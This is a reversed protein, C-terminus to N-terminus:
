SFLLRIGEFASAFGVFFLIARHIPAVPHGPFRSFAGRIRLSKALSGVMFLAGLLIMLIKTFAGGSVIVMLDPGKL